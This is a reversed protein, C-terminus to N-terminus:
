RVGGTWRTRAGAILEFWVDSATETSGGDAEYLSMFDHAQLNDESLELMFVTADSATVLKETGVDFVLMHGDELLKAGIVSGYDIESAQTDVSAEAM